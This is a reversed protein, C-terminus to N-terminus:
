PGIWLSGFLSEGGVGLFIMRPYRHGKNTHVKSM